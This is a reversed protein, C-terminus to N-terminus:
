PRATVMGRAAALTRRFGELNDDAVLAVLEDLAARTARYV